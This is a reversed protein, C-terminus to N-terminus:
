PESRVNRLVNIFFILTGLVVLVGGLPILPALAATGFIYATLGGMMLPIGLNHMWFHIKGLLGTARPFIHYVLGAIAMSVWGLLNLHVHVPSLDFSETMSMGMGMVVGVFFYFTSIKIMRIGM